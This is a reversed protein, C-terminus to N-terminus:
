LRGEQLQARLTLLEQTVTHAVASEGGWRDPHCRAILQTLAQVLRPLAPPPPAKLRRLQRVEALLQDYGVQLTDRERTLDDITAHLTDLDPLPPRKACRPWDPCGWFTQQTARNVREVMPLACRPCRPVTGPAPRSM